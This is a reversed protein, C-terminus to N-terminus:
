FPGYDMIGAISVLIMAVVTLILVLKLIHKAWRDYPIDAFPLYYVMAPYIMDTIGSGFQFALVTSQRSVELTDSLPIMIPMTAAAQGSGSGIFFNILSQILFMGILTMSDGAGAICETLFYVITDLVHGDELVLVIARSFGVVIAGFAIGGLGKSFEQAVQDPTMGGALGMLIGFGLFLATLETTGWSYSITGFVMLGFTLLLLILVLSQKKTVEADIDIAFASDGHDGAYDYLVSKTPDKKVKEAYRVIFVLTIVMFIVYCVVRYGWGSFLPLGALEHAIGITFPNLIAAAFGVWSATQIIHFGVMRDYGLGLALSVGLPILPIIQQAFGFIAGLLSTVISVACIVFIDKGKMRLILLRLGADLAGTGRVIQITGSVIFIFMIVTSSEQLGRPVARLMDFIGVPSKEIYVFSEPDVVTRGTTEDVYRQYEGAPLVWTMVMAMIILLSLIVYANPNFLKKASGHPKTDKM